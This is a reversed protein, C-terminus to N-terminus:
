KSLMRKLENYRESNEMEEWRYTETCKELNFIGNKDHHYVRIQNKDCLVLVEAKGWNAYTVGQNFTEEIETLGHMFFKVEIVVKVIIQKGYHKYHLIFDPRKEMRHGTTGHGAPFEVQQDYDEKYKWGMQELLPKLRYNEVDKEDNISVNELKKPEHLSPLISVDFDKAKLMRKIEAYDESTVQWGSVDQFKKSVFNGEKKRTKFYKSNKFEDFTIAKDSPISIKNGIYTHSYYHFFPDVVGDQLAIWVSNLKKVPSKEYFLMIDGKRTFPNAQWFLEKGEKEGESYNGVLIWAQQPVDPLSQNFEEEMEEKIVSMEYDYLFACIESLSHLRNEEAFENILKCIHDYYLWREKYDSRKPMDPLKIEYKEAIKKLFIFQMPFFNPIYYQPFYCSLILSLFLNDGLVSKFTSQPIDNFEMNEDEGFLVCALGKYDVYAGDINQKDVDEKLKGITNDLYDLFKLLSEEEKKNTNKFFEPNYKCALKYLDKVSTNSDTLKEFSAIAEKGKESQKYNEWYLKIIKKM